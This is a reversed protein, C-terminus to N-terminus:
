YRRSPSPTSFPSPTPAPGPQTQQSPPATSRAPGRDEARQAMAQQSEQVDKILRDLAVNHNHAVDAWGKGSKLEAVVQDVTLKAAQSLLNAILLDGWGLRTRASQARLAEASVDLKRSIYGIVIREGDPGTRVSEIATALEELTPTDTDAGWALGIGLLAVLAMLSSTAYRM